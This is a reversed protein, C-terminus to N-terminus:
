LLQVNGSFVHTECELLSEIEKKTIVIRISTLHYKVTPKIQMEQHVTVNFM